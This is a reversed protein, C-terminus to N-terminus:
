LILISQKSNTIVEIIFDNGAGLIRKLSCSSNLLVWFRRILDTLVRFTVM